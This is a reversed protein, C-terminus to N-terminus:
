GSKMYRAKMESDAAYTNWTQQDISFDKCLGGDCLWASLQDAYKKPNSMTMICSIHWTFPVAAESVM